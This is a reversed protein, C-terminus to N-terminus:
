GKRPVRTESRYLSWTLGLGVAWNLRERFLPSGTNAAGGHFSLDGGAFVNLRESAPWALGVSLDTGLYGGSADHAPREATRYAPDVEYFYDQLREGAFAAALSASFGLGMGFFGRREYTLEPDVVIGRYDIRSLDTSFVARVPIGLTVRGGGFPGLDFRARPGVEFLYGLDPMGRRASNGDSDVDFSADIGIDLEVIDDDVILGRALGDDGLRFVDGRYIVYPLGLGRVSKEDAAPYDAGYIGGGGIGVEWLPATRAPAKAPGAHAHWETSASGMLLAASALTVALCRRARGAPRTM